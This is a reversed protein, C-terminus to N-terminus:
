DLLHQQPSYEVVRLTRDQIQGVMRGQGRTERKIRTWEEDAMFQAWRDQMTAEDPWELLYAFETRQEQRTEWMAVIRFDYRQMIRTAHDRFRAHFQPKTDEFIEYIRLQQIPAAAPKPPDAARALTALLCLAALAGLARIPSAFTM